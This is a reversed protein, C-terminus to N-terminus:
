GSRPILSLCLKSKHTHYDNDFSERFLVSPTFITFKLFISSPSGEKESVSAVVFHIVLVYCKCPECLRPVGNYFEFIAPAQNYEWFLQRIRLFFLEDVDPDVAGVTVPEGRGHLVAIRHRLLNMRQDFPYGALILGLSSILSV